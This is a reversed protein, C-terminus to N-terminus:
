LTGAAEQERNIKDLLAEPEIVFNFTTSVPIEYTTRAPRVKETVKDVKQFAAIIGPLDAPNKAYSEIHEAGPMQSGDKKPASLELFPIRGIDTEFANDLKFYSINRDNILSEDIFVGKDCYAAFLAEYENDSECNYCIHDLTLKEFLKASRTRIFMNFLHVTARMRRDLIETITLTTM